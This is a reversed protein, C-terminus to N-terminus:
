RKFSSILSVLDKRFRLDLCSSDHRLTRCMQELIAGPLLPQLGPTSRTMETLWESEAEIIVM